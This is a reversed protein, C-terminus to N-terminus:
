KAMIMKMAAPDAKIMEVMMKKSKKNNMMEQCMASCGAETKLTERVAARTQEIQKQAASADALAPLTQAAFLCTLATFTLLTKM